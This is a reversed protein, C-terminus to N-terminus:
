PTRDINDLYVTQLLENYYVFAPPIFVNPPIINISQKSAFKYQVDSANAMLDVVLKEIYQAAM